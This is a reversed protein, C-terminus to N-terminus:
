LRSAALGIALAMSIGFLALGPTLRRRHTLFWLAVGSVCLFVLSGALTDVLLIWGLSMGVGKHMNALTAALGNRTQTVALSRNGRWYDAQVLADPGGFSFIWHEPQMAGTGDETWPVPRASEVRVSNPAGAQRLTAQLWHAMAQPTAPAPQPMAIRTTSRQQEMPLKLVARHNLWIGAFGFVLGLVAGWLGFWGHTKRLWAIAIMSRSPRHQARAPTGLTYAQSM